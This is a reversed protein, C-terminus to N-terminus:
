SSYYFVGGRIKKLNGIMTSWYQKFAFQIGLLLFSLILLFFHPFPVYLINLGMTKNSSEISM